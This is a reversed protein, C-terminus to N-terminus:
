EKSQQLSGLIKRITGIVNTLNNVVFLDIGHRHEIALRARLGGGFVSGGPLQTDISIIDTNKIAWKQGKTFMDILNPSFLMRKNTVFLKGGVARNPSQTRNALIFFEILEGELRDHNEIWWGGIKDM